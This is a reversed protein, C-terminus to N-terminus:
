CLVDCAEDRQARAGARTHTQRNTRTHAHTNACTRGRTQTGKHRHPTAIRAALSQSESHTNEWQERRHQVVETHGSYDKDDHLTRNQKLNSVIEPNQREDAKAKKGLEAMFAVVRASLLSAAVPLPNGPCCSIQFSFKKFKQM